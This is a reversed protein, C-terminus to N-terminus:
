PSVEGLYVATRLSYVPETRGEYWVFVTSYILSDDRDAPEWTAEVTLCGAADPVMDADYSALVASKEGPRANGNEDLLSLLAEPSDSASVAEAANQALCVANTLMKAEASQARALGFVRTLVLIVAVVVAILLLTELYFGTVPHAQRKM